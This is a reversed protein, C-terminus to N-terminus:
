LSLRMLYIWFQQRLTSLSIKKFLNNMRKTLISGLKVIEQKYVYFWIKSFPTGCTTKIKRDASIAHTGWAM